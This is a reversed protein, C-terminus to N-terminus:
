RNPGYNIAPQKVGYVEVEALTLYQRRRPIVINVYRGTMGRCNFTETAGAGIHKITACLNNRNGNDSLSDGIRIEAGNLRNACCDKRNTVTVYNVKYDARLDVRWWPRYDYRTHTCSRQNWNSARNGDIAHQPKGYRNYLSSQTAIGGRAVNPGLTAARTISGCKPVPCYEWRKRRDTTYCWPRKVNDPNRCYNNELGSHPYRRSTRSHRHPTQASWSQCTRGSITKAVTGRYNKGRGTYCTSESNIAPQKVGYVEVEALTLYQRRRPIVINVYRGTMGM